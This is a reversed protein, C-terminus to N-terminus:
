RGFSKWSKRNETKDTKRSTFVRKLKALRSERERDELELQARTKEINIGTDEADVDETDDADNAKREHEDRSRRSKILEVLIEWAALGNFAGLGAQAEPNIWPCYDRHLGVVDFQLIDDDAIGSQASPLAKNAPNSTYLWLGIRQFCRDCTALHINHPSSGQWGFLALTGGTSQIPSTASTDDSSGATSTDAASTLAAALTRSIQDVVSRHSINNSDDSDTTTQDGQAPVKLREPLSSSIESLSQYRDVLAQQWVGADAMRIRYIDNKCGGSRWLCGDKHGDVILDKYRMVLEEDPEGNWVGGENTIEDDDEDGSLTELTKARERGRELRVVVRAECGGKCAVTDVKGKDCVWGRKAWEVESIEAPKYTWIKVDAFTKLRELFRDQSYPQYNPAKAPENSAKLITGNSSQALVKSGIVQVSTPRTLNVSDGSLRTRKSTPEHPTATSTAKNTKVNPSSNLGDLLKYFKRKSTALAPPPTSEAM